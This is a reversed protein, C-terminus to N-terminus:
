SAQCKSLRHHAAPSPTPSPTALQVGHTKQLEFAAQKVAKQANIIEHEATLNYLLRWTVAHDGNEILRIVGGPRPQHRRDIQPGTKWVKLLYAEGKTRAPKTVSTSSWM